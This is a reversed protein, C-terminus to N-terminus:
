TLMKRLAESSVRHASVADHKAPSGDEIAQEMTMLPRIGRDHLFDFLRQYNIDSQGSFTEDWVGGTSQRLHLEVIRDAYLELTDFLAVSSDGCGRFVWHADLCFKVNDPDTGALMHHFERAGLRLESDHNHYALTIGEARLAAGLKNLAQGQVRIQDDTKNEPGGWSIPSPNTVLIHTGFKARARAAVAVVHDISQAAAEKEHLVSNMYASEMTLGTAELLPAYTAIAAEDELNPEIGTYGTAAVDAAVQPLEDELRRGERKLFTFWPYTNCSIKTMPFPAAASLKGSAAVATAVSLTAIFDRRSPSPPSNDVAGSHM